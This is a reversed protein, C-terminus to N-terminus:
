ALSIPASYDSSCWFQTLALNSRRNVCRSRHEQEQMQWCSRTRQNRKSFTVDQKTAEHLLQQMDLAVELGKKHFGADACAYAARGIGAAKDLRMRIETLYERITPEVLQTNM